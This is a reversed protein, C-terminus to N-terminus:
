SFERQGDACDPGTVTRAQSFFEVWGEILKTNCYGVFTIPALIQRCCSAAVMSIRETKHGLKLDYYRAHNRAGVM